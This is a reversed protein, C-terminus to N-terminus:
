RSLEKRKVQNRGPHEPHCDHEGNERAGVIEVPEEQAGADLREDLVPLAPWSAGRTLPSAVILRVRGAMSAAYRSPATGMTYMTERRKPPMSMRDAPLPFMPAVLTRRGRPLSGATTVSSPSTALPAAATPAARSRSGEGGDIPAAATRAIMPLQQGTKRRNRPPFPTAVPNPANRARAQIAVAGAAST